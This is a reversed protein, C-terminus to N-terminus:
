YITRVGFCGLLLSYGGVVGGADTGRVRDGILFFSVWFTGGNHIYKAAAASKRHPANTGASREAPATHLVAFHKCNAAFFLRIRGFYPVWFCADPFGAEGRQWDFTCSLICHGGEEGVASYDHVYMYM